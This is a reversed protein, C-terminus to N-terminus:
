ATEGGDPTQASSRKARLPASVRHLHSVIEGYSQVVGAEHYALGCERCFEKVIGRAARFRHRPLAPFLHHEIQYNLGGYLFDAVPSPRVNRATLVQQELFSLRSAAAVLPMGKHNPAFVAGTYLGALAQSTAIFALAPGVELLGFVLTLYVAYHGALLAGELWPRESRGRLLHEVAGWRLNFAELLLLPFFLIGQYRVILKWVAGKALAQEESFAVVPFDIDPDLDLQNPNAHHRNHKDTWWGYSLGILLNACIMGVVDNAGPTRMIQRHGADHMVFGIQTFVFALFAGNVLQVAISDSAALIAVCAAGALAIWAGTWIYRRPRRELLGREKIRRKLELYGDASPQVPPRAAHEEPAALSAGGGRRVPDRLDSSANSRQM